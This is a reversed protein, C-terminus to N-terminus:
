FFQPGGEQKGLIPTTTALKSSMKKGKAAACAVGCQFGLSAGPLDTAEELRREGHAIAVLKAEGGGMIAGGGKEEWEMCGLLFPRELGEKGEEEKEDKEWRHEAKKPQCLGKGGRPIGNTDEGQLCIKNSKRCDNM